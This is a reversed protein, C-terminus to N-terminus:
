YWLSLRPPRPSAFMRDVRAATDPDTDIRGARRLTEASVGGLFLSGLASADLRVTDISRAAAVADADTDALSAYEAAEVEARGRDDVELRWTGSTLGLPDEVVLAVSGAQAYTRSALARPVDLIRLWEHERVSVKAARQDAIMWRLPEDISCLSATIRSVLDHELAFRWLAAYADDGDAVLVQIAMTHDTFDNESETLSYVLMGRAVGAADSYQVARVKRGGEAGVRLGAMRRWLGDWGAVEGVQHLRSRDHVEAMRAPIADREVFDLRGDPRPGVWRARAPTIDWDSTYVAPGFGWRGYITTETVTLGAIAYGAAAAMRLEGGVMSGAIGRRRHTPAVTVGSIALMPETRGPSVTLETHWSDITAIPVEAQVSDPDYAATLRRPALAGRQDDIQEPTAEESLFGRNIAQLFGAFAPEAHLVRRYELGVEALSAASDADLPVSHVDIDPM